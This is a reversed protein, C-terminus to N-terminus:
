TDLHGERLGVRSTSPVIGLFEDLGTVNLVLDDGVGLVFFTLFLNDVM